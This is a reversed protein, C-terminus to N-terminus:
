LEGSIEGMPFGALFGRAMAERVGKEVAPIYEQPVVGGKINNIFEFHDERTLNKPVKKGEELPEMKKM